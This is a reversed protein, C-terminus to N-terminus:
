IAWAEAKEAETPHLPGEGRSLRQFVLEHIHRYTTGAELTASIEALGLECFGRVHEPSFGFHVRALLLYLPILATEVQEFASDTVCLGLRGHLAPMEAEFSAPTIARLQDMATALVELYAVGREQFVEAILQATEAGEEPDLGLDFQDGDRGETFRMSRMFICQPYDYPAQVEYNNRAPFGPPHAAIIMMTKGGYKGGLLWTGEWLCNTSRQGKTGVCKFGLGRLLPSVHKTYHTRFKAAKMSISRPKVGPPLKDRPWLRHPLEELPRM